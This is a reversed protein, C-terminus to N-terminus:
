PFPPTPQTPLTPPTLKHQSTARHIGWATFAAIGAISSVILVKEATPMKSNGAIAKTQSETLPQGTVVALKDVLVAVSQYFQRDRRKKTGFARVNASETWLVANTRPDRVTLIIQPNYSVIDQPGSTAPAIARVEFILDAEAPSSALEYHGTRKLMKYFTNYARNAGGSFIEFYNSGGGNSVFVTRANLVQPPVPAASSDPQQAPLVPALVLLGSLLLSLTSRFESFM